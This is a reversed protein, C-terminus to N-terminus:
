EREDTEVLRSSRGIIWAIAVGASWSSNQRVLPSDIFAAHNLWDHRV